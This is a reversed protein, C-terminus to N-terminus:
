HTDGESFGAPPLVPSRFEGPAATAQEVRRMREIRQSSPEFYSAHTTLIPDDDLVESDGAFVVPVGDRYMVFPQVCRYTRPERTRPM